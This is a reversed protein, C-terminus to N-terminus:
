NAIVARHVSAVESIDTKVAGVELMMKSFVSKEAAFFEGVRQKLDRSAKRTIQRMAEDGFVAELLKQAVLATGSAVAVEGGVLGGTASFVVIMMALGIANVGYSLIKAKQRKSSGEEEILSILYNQWNLFLDQAKTNLEAESALASMVQTIFSEPLAYYRWDQLVGERAKLAWAALTKGTEENLATVTNSQNVQSNQFLGTIRDRLRSITSDIKQSWNAIGLIEQWYQLVEDRLLAGNSFSSLAETQANVFSQELDWNLAQVLENKEGLAAEIVPFFEQLETVAGFLTQRIVSSRSYDDRAIGNLWNRLPAIDADKIRGNSLNAEMFTFLPSKELGAELLRKQLDARVEVGVGVPVRNLVISSVVNRQAAETLLAWPIADSYRSATTVFIWVDAGALLQTALIRNEAAVSDIDPADVLALKRPIADHTFIAIESLPGPMDSAAASHEAQVRKLEPFVHLDLFYERDAPNCVLIPRRTTPRIASTVSLNEGIISNLLTSKGSGTSGGIVVLLPANLDTFRPILYDELQRRIDLVAEKANQAQLSAFPFELKAYCDRLAKLALLQ